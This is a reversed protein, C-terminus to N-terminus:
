PIKSKMDEAAMCANDYTRSLASSFIIALVDMGTKLESEFAREVGRRKCCLNREKRRAFVHM